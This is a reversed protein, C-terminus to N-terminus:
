FRSHTKSVGYIDGLGSSQRVGRLSKSAGGALRGVIRDEIENLIVAQAAKDLRLKDFNHYLDRMMGQLNKGKRASKPLTSHVAEIFDRFESYTGLAGLLLRAARSGMGIKQEKQSRPPPRRPTPKNSTEVGLSGASSFRVTKKIRPRPDPRPVEPDHYGRSSQEIYQPSRQRKPLLPYPLPRVAPVGLGPPSFPDIVPAPAVSPATLPAYKAPQAEIWQPPELDPDFAPDVDTKEWRSSSNYRVNPAEYTEDRGFNIRATTGALSWDIQGLGANFSALSVAGRTTCRGTANINANFWQDDGGDPCRFTETYGTMDWHAAIEDQYKSMMPSLYENELIYNILGYVNAGRGYLSLARNLRQYQRYLPNFPLKSKHPFGVVDGSQRTPLNSPISIKQKKLSSQAM